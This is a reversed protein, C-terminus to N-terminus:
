SKENCEGGEILLLKYKDMLYQVVAPALYGRVEWQKPHRRMWLNAYSHATMLQGTTTCSDIVSFLKATYAVAKM